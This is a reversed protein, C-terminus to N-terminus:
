PQRRIGIEFMKPWRKGTVFIRDNEADYAIGNLVDVDPRARDEPPLLGTLDLRGRVEGTIPSVILIQDTLWVNAYIEGNIFELENLGLVADGGATVEIVNVEAFTEPDLFRLSATGDSMILHTDNHTMGWGETPYGFERLQRFTAKDYVFGKHSQWTLQILRNGHITLGEAFYEGPLRKTMVVRGTELEVKRLSSTGHGGTSEYLFGSEFVLGQTFADRAHPYVRKVSYDFVCAARTASSDM